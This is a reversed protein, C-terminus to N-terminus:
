VLIFLKFSLPKPPKTQTQPFTHHFGKEKNYYIYLSAKLFFLTFNKVNPPDPGTMTVSEKKKLFM